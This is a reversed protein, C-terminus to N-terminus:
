LTDGFKILYSVPFTHCGIKVEKKSVENVTYGGVNMGEKLLGNKVAIHFRKAHTMPISVGQSTEVNDGDESKRLYDRSGTRTYIYRVERKIWKKVNEKHSKQEAKLKKEAQERELIAINQLMEDAGKPTLLTIDAFAAFIDPCEVNVAEAYAEAMHCLSMIERVYKEPKRAAKLKPLELKILREFQDFNEQPTSEPNWCFVLEKHNVANRTLGIHKATTNSYSRMTFLVKGSPLHRAIPFHHGYSYITCGRFFFSHARGETQQQHAWIHPLEHNSFVTKM